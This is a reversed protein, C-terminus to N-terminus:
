YHICVALVMGFSDETSYSGMPPTVSHMGLTNGIEELIKAGRLNAQVTSSERGWFADLLARQICQLLLRDRSDGATPDRKECQFPCM